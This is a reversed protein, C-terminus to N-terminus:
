MFRMVEDAGKGRLFFSDGSGIPWCCCGRPILLTSVCVVWLLAFSCSSHATPKNRMAFGSQYKMWVFQALYFQLSLDTKKWRSVNKCIGKLVWLAEVNGQPDKQPTNSTTLNARMWLGVSHCRVSCSAGSLVAILWSISTKEDVMYEGLISDTVTTKDCVNPEVPYIYVVALLM